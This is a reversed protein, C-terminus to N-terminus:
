IRYVLASSRGIVCLGSNPKFPDQMLPRRLPACPPLSRCGSYAGTLTVGRPTPLPQPPLRTPMAAPQGTTLTAICTTSPTPQPTSSHGAVPSRMYCGQRCVDAIRVSKPSPLTGERQLAISMSSGGSSTRGCRQSTCYPNSAGECVVSRTGIVERHGRSPPSWGSRHYRPKQQGEGAPAM